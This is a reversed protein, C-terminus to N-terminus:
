INKEKLEQIFLTFTKEENTMGKKKAPPDKCFFTKPADSESGVGIESSQYNDNKVLLTVNQFVM